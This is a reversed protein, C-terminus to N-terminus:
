PHYEVRNRGSQKAKYLYDDAANVWRDIDDGPAPMFSCGGISITVTIAGASTGFPTGGIAELLRNAMGLGEDRGTGVSLVAIEEGGYRFLVDRRRLRSSCRAVVQQLIEDGVPHGYNDNVRKFFDIDMMLLTIWEPEEAARALAEESYEFFYRRNKAGTLADETAQTNLEDLRRRFETMERIIFGDGCYQNISNSLSFTFARYYTTAGDKEIEFEYGKADMGGALGLLKVFAEKGNERVIAHTNFFVRGPPNIDVVNGWRDFVVYIEQTFQMAMSRATRLYGFYVYCVVSITIWNIFMSTHHNAGFAAELGLDVWSFISPVLVSLLIVLNVRPELANPGRRVRRTFSLIFVTLLCVSSLFTLVVGAPGPIVTYGIGDGAKAVSGFYLRHVPNTACLMAAAAPLAFLWLQRQEATPGNFGIIRLVLVALTVNVLTGLMMNLSAVVNLAPGQPLLLCAFSLGGQLLAQVILFVCLALQPIKRPLYRGYALLNYLLLVTNVAFMAVSFAGQAAVAVGGM